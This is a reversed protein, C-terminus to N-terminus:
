RRRKRAFAAAVIDLQESLTIKKQSVEAVDDAWDSPMWHSFPKPDMKSKGGSFWRMIMVRVSDMMTMM